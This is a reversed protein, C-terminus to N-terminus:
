IKEITIKLNYDLYLKIITYDENIEIKYLPKTDINLKSDSKNDKISLKNCKRILKCKCEKFEIVGNLAGTFALKIPSNEFKFLISELEKEKIKIM